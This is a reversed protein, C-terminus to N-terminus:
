DARCNVWLQLSFLQIWLKGLPILAIHFAIDEGPNSSTAGHGNWIVIVMVSRAGRRVPTKVLASLIVPKILRIINKPLSYLLMKYSVRIILSCLTDEICSLAIIPWDIMKEDCQYYIITVNSCVRNVYVNSIEHTISCHRFKSSTMQEFIKKIILFTGLRMNRDSISTTLYIGKNYLYWMPDTM